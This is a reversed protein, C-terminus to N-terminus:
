EGAVGVGVAVADDAAARPQEIRIVVQADRDGVEEGTAGAPGRLRGDALRHHRAAHDVAHGRLEAAREDLHGDPELPEHASEEVAPNTEPAPAPRARAE